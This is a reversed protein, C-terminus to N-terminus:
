SWGDEEDSLEAVIWKGREASGWTAYTTRPARYKKILAWVAQRFAEEDESSVTVVTQTVEEITSDMTEERIIDGEIERNKGVVEELSICVAYEKAINDLDGKEIPVLPSATVGLPYWRMKAVIEAKAM